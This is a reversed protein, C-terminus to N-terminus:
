ERRYILNRHGSITEDDIYKTDSINYM